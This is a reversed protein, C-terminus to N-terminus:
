VWHARIAAVLARRSTRLPLNSLYYKREGSTRREGELRVEDGPLHRNNPFTAGDGVRM